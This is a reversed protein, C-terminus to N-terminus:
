LIYRAVHCAYKFLLSPPSRFMMLFAASSKRWLQIARPTGASLTSNM